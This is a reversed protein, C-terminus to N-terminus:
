DWLYREDYEVKYEELFKILEIKFNQSKHHEKQRAIYNKVVDVKYSSVSFAGYGRQWSFDKYNIGKTKIWKSSSCKIEELYKSLTITKPLTTLIHIHDEVGNIIIPIGGLGTIIGGIYSYLENDIDPKILPSRYKTSFVLHVFIKALSQAM